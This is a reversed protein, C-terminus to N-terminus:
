EDRPRQHPSRERAAAGPEDPFPDPTPEGDAAPRAPETLPTAGDHPFRGGVCPELDPGGFFVGRELAAEASREDGLVLRATALADAEAATPATMLAARPSPLPLATRADIVHGYHTAPDSIGALPEGGLAGSRYADGSTAVAARRLLFRLRRESTEGFPLVEVRWGDRGPPPDLARLDGGGDMLARRVGAAEVAELAEDVAVGKAVAGFDLRLGPEATRFELGAGTERLQVLSAWGVRRADEGWAEGDPWQGQRLARRWRRTLAGVTPDFAGGSVRVWRDAARLVAALDDSVGVWAGASRAPLERAESDAVYDTAVEAIRDVRAFAAAAARDAEAGDAAHLTLRFLTGMAPHQYSRRVAAEPAPPREPPAAEAGSTSRCAPCVAGVALAGLLLM